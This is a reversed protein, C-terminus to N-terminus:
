RIIDLVGAVDKARQIAEVPVRVTADAARRILQEEDPAGGELFVGQVRKDDDIWVVIIKRSIQRDVDNVHVPTGKRFGYLKWSFDFFRSYYSPLFEYGHGSDCAKSPKRRGTAGDSDSDSDEDRQSTDARQPPGAEAEELARDNVTEEEEAEEAVNLGGAGTLMAEKKKEEKEVCRLHKALYAAMSRANWIYEYRVPRAGARRQPFAAVDGLAYVEPHPKQAAAAAIQVERSPFAQLHKDVLIGGGVCEDALQLQSNLFEVVPRNGIAAVVFDAPLVHSSGDSLIVHVATVREDSDVARVLNHVSANKIITVGHQEFQQEYFDSLEPTYIKSLLRASRTVVFVKLGQQSLAAAVETGTFGTGIVVVSGKSADATGLDGESSPLMQSLTAGTREKVEKVLEVVEAAETAFRFTLVNTPIGRLNWLGFGAFDVCRLGTAVILKEFSVTRQSHQLSARRNALDVSAVAENLLVHVGHDVYWQADQLEGGIGAAVNFKPFQAKGLLYGKSLAPREYPLVCESSVMLFRLTRDKNQMSLRALSHVRSSLSTKSPVTHLTASPSALEGKPLDDANTADRSLNVGTDEKEVWRLLALSDPQLAEDTDQRAAAGGSAEQKAASAASTSPVTLGEGAVPATASCQQLDNKTELADGPASSSASPLLGAPKADAQSTAEARGESQKADAPRAVPDAFYHLFYGAAPGGGVVLYKVHLPDDEPPPLRQRLLLEKESLHCVSPRMSGSAATVASCCLLFAFPPFVGAFPM